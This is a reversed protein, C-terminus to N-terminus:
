RLSRQRKEQLEQIPWNGNAHIFNPRTGCLTNVPLGREFDLEPYGDFLCFFLETRCDLQFPATRDALTINLMGQDWMGAEYKPHDELADAFALINTPAGATLGGNSFKWPTIGPTIDRISCDPWSERGAGVLVRDMPVKRIVDEPTGYFTVDWANTIVLREYDAYRCAIESHRKIYYERKWPIGGATPIDTLPHVVCEIGAAEQQTLNLQM